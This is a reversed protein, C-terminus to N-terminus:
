YADGTSLGNLSVGAVPDNIATVLASKKAVTMVPKKENEMQRRLKIALLRPGYISGCVGMLGVWAVVKPDVKYHYHSAVEAVAESLLKAETEDLELEDIKTAKAVTM